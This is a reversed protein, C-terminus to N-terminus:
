LQTCWIEVCGQSLSSCNSVLRSLTTSHHTQLVYFMWKDIVIYSLLRAHGSAIPTGKPSRSHSSSPLTMMVKMQGRTSRPRKLNWQKTNKSNKNQSLNANILCEKGLTGPLSSFLTMHCGPVTFRSPNDPSFYQLLIKLYMYKSKRM